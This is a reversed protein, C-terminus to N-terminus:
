WGMKACDEDGLDFNFNYNTGDVKYTTTKMLGDVILGLVYTSNMECTITIVGNVIDSEKWEDEWVTRYYGHLTPIVESQKCVVKLHITVAKRVVNSLECNFPYDKQSIAGLKFEYPYVIFEAAGAVRKLNLQYRKSRSLVMKASYASQGPKVQLIFEGEVAQTDMNTLVGKVPYDINPLDPNRTFNFNFNPQILLPNITYQWVLDTGPTTGFNIKSPLSEFTNVNDVPQIQLYVNSNAPLTAILDFENASKTIKYDKSWVLANNSSFFINARVMFEDNIFEQGRTLKVRGTVEQLTYIPHIACAWTLGKASATNLSFNVPLSTFSNLNDVAQLQLYVTKNVPLNALIDFETINKGIKYEKSWVLGSNPALYFGAKIMFEDNKFGAGITLKVKGSVEALTSTILSELPSFTGCGNTFDFFDPKATFPNSGSYNVLNLRVPTNEPVKLDFPKVAGKEPLDIKLTGVFRSDTRRYVNTVTSVPYAPFVGPLLFSIPGNMSCLNIHMGASHIGPVTIASEVFYGLSDSKLKLAENLEWSTSKPIYTYSQVDNDPLIASRTVPHYAGNDIKYRLVLPNVPAVTLPEGAKNNFQLDVVRYIDLASKQVSKDRLIVDSLLSGPVPALSVKTYVTFSLSILPSKDVVGGSNLFQTGKKLRVSAEKGSSFYGFDEKLEGNENLEPQFFYKKIGSVEASTKEMMIRYEYKGTADIKLNLTAGKYNASTAEIQFTLTNQASPKWPDKPNVALSLLGFVSEYTEEHNGMQDVIAASSAGKVLVSVKETGTAGIPTGTAADVFRFSLFTNFINYNILVKIGDVPSKLESLNICSFGLLLCVLLLKLRLFRSYRNKVSKM